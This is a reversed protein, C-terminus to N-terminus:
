LPIEPWSAKRPSGEHYLPHSDVELAPSVPEVGPKAPNGYAASCSLGYAVVM